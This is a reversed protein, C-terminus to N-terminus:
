ENKYTELTSFQTFRGEWHLKVAGTEGHRNKAIICEAINQDSEQKYYGERYLFMVVDADQEISGSERLDSLVPRHDARNDTNRSLQSCLIVPVDLEKALVKVARTIESVENVRNNGAKSSGTMLQLYDIVVLGLNKVRRLASKMEGATIAASDDLFLTSDSIVQAAKSLDVWQLGDVNGDRMNESPVRAHASM